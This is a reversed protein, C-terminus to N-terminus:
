ERSLFRLHYFTAISTSVIMLGALIIILEVNPKTASVIPDVGVIVLFFTSAIAIGMWFNRLRRNRRVGALRDFHSSHM